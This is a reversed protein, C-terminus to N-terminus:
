PFMSLRQGLLYNLVLFPQFLLKQRVKFVRRLYGRRDTILIPAEHTEDLIFLAELFRKGLIGHLSYAPHFFPRFAM